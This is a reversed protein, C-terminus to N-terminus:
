AYTNVNSGATGAPPAPNATGSSTSPNTAQEAAKKAAERRALEKIAAQDGKAEAARLQVVTETTVDTSSSTSSSSAASAGGAGGPPPGGGGPPRGGPPPGHGARPGGPGGAGGAGPGGGPTPLDVGNDKAYSKFQALTMSGGNGAAKDFNAVLKDLGDPAQGGMAEIRSKMAGLDAKTISRPPSPGRAYPSPLPGVAHITM